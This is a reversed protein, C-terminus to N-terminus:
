NERPPVAGAAGGGGRHVARIQESYMSNVAHKLRYLVAFSIWFYCTRILHKQKPANVTYHM